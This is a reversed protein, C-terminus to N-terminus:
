TPLVVGEFSGPLEQCFAEQRSSSTAGTQNQPKQVMVIDSGEKNPREMHRCRGRKAEAQAIVHKEERM